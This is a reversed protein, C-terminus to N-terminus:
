PAAECVIRLYLSVAAEFNREGASSLATLYEHQRRQLEAIKADGEGRIAARERDLADSAEAKRADLAGDRDSRAAKLERERREEAFAVRARAEDDASVIVELDPHM